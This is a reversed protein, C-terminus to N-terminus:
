GIVALSETAVLDGAGPVAEATVTLDYIGPQLATLEGAFCGAREDWALRAEQAAVAGRATQAPRLVAAVPVDRVGAAVEHLRVTLPISDGVLYSDDVDLGIAAGRVEAERYAPQGPVPPPCGEYTGIRDVIQQIMPRSFILRGHREPVRIGNEEAAWSEMGAPLASVAPVTGDGLDKEWGPVPLWSPRHKHVKLRNGDWYAADLTDHSWGIRPVLEPGAQPIQDCGAAIDEHVGFARRAAPRLWDIPLEHPYRAVQAVEDWVAPYGPMLETVSPWERFLETVSKMMRDGIGAGGVALKLAKPAGRHPTGLTILARCVRWGELPGLWYRAILGGTSHAVVIVRGPEGAGGLAALRERVDAALREAITVVSQRFDYPFALVNADPLRRYPHGSDVVAGPLARLAAMLRDYGPIVTWGPVLARSQILGVPQLAPASLSFWHSTRLLRAISALGADGLVNGSRELVSGGIDPLLVVLHKRTVAVL